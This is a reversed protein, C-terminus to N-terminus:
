DRFRKRFSLRNKEIAQKFEQWTKDDCVPGEKMWQRLMLIVAQNREAITRQDETERILSLRSPKRAL